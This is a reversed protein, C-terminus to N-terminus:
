FQRGRNASSATGHIQVVDCQARDSSIFLRAEFRQKLRVMVQAGRHLDTVCEPVDGEPPLLPQGQQHETRHDPFTCRAILPDTPIPAVLEITQM